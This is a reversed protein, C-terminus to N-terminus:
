DRLRTRDAHDDEQVPSASMPRWSSSAARCAAQDLTADQAAREGLRRQVLAARTIQDQVAEHKHRARWHAQLALQREREKDALVSEAREVQRRAEVLHERLLDVRRLGRQIQLTQATAGTPAPGWPRRLTETIDDAVAQQAQRRLHLAQQADKMARTTAELTRRTDNERRERVRELSALMRKSM